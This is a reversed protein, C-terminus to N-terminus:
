RQVVENMGEKITEITEGILEAKATIEQSSAAISAAKDNIKQIRELMQETAYNLQAIAPFMAESKVEGAAVTQKTQQALQNVQKSIVAFGKGAEGARASEISANLALIVTETSIHIIEKNVNDYEKVSSEVDQLRDTMTNTFENLQSLTDTLEVLNEAAMQNGATLEQMACHINSFEEFVKQYSDKIFLHEQEIEQSLQSIKDKEMEVQGKVYHICNEPRNFGRMVATAMERCSKYGCASCDLTRNEKTKKNLRRFGEELDKETVKLINLYKDKNYKCIFDELRLNHFKQNLRKLRAQPSAKGSWEDRRNETQLRKNHVELLIDDSNQSRQETATGYLCGSGCNLADILFPLKGNQKVRKAYDHLFRYAHEEGEIQRVFVEKGLFHEVNEKLGGPMPYISGLGYELEDAAEYSSINVSKLRKMLHEFTVNYSIYGKNQPRMIESKKAICPSIFAFDETINLYKRAYIAACMMPSHVPVLKDVLEPVYKEIYDVIAPCPQSIGGTLQHQTIYNLYGWTTIDAGFSVSIMHSVGLSKLYGLVQKYERPYNAAFAPAILISIKKGKKLDQFFTDTDDEYERALHSCAKICKGCRVCSDEDVIIRSKGNEVVARNVEVLPCVSICKNCGICLENTTIISKDSM